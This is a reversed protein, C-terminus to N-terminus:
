QATRQLAMLYPDFVDIITKYCQDDADNVAEWERAAAESSFPGFAHAPNEVRLGDTIPGQSHVVVVPGEIPHDHASEVATM